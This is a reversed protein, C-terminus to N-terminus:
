GRFVEIARQRAAPIADPSNNYLRLTNDTYLFCLYRMFDENDQEETLRNSASDLNDSIRILFSM